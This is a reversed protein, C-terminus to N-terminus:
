SGYIENSIGVTEFNSFKETSKLLVSVLKDERLIKNSPRFSRGITSYYFMKKTAKPDLSFLSPHFNM